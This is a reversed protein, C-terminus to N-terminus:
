WNTRKVTIAKRYIGYGGAERNNGIVWVTGDNGLGVDNAAGPHRIWRRGTWQFIMHRNNVVWANGAGDVSIRIASGSIKIWRHAVWKYIGFGGGERNAGIVWVQGDGGVGIDYAAGPLRVWRRGTYQFINRQRNVVWANGDPGVAIRVASGPIKRWRNRGHYKYIGFGGGERNTGIVWAQGAENVGVDWARGGILNWKQGDHRFIRAHKNTVWANGAGDTDVQRASGGIKHWNRELSYENRQSIVFNGDTQMCARTDKDRSSLCGGQSLGTGRTLMYHAKHYVRLRLGSSPRPKPKPRARHGTTAYGWAKIGCFHLYERARGVVKIFGGRARCNLTYWAGQRPNRIYGCYQRGVYVRAGNLRSGCCDGRNLISIRSITSYGGELNVRWWAGRADNLTHMCTLPRVGFRNRYRIRKQGKFPNYPYNGRYNLRSSMTAGKFSFKVPMNRTHRHRSAPGWVKIGCFTLYQRPAGVIKVYSGRANCNVAYWAGQRPRRVTGCLSGGVYIRANNLRYGCCDGRNLIAIRSVRVNGGFSAWWWAGKRDNYTCACTFAGGGWRSNFRHTKFPNWAHNRRDRYTSSMRATRRLGIVTVRKPRPISKRGHDPGWVQIGCFTLYTRPRGVIKIWSTRANRCNMTYWGGQRARRVVGCLHGGAYIRAGNLRNGCCDGRNLISVRSVRVNRGFSAWWWAGRRDNNTCACTFAGYGWRSEWRTTKFPNWAHNRRDRYTSSM